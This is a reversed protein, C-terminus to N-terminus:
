GRASEKAPLTVATRALARKASMAVGTRPPAPVEADAAWLHQAAYARWPRWREARRELAEAGCAEGQCRAMGRLIGRDSAPFADPDRAARLAIYHATWAGIGRV